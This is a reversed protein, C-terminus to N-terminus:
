AVEMESFDFVFSSFEPFEKVFPVIADLHITIKFSESENFVFKEAILVGDFMIQKDQKTVDVVEFRKSIGTDFGKPPYMLIELSKWFQEAELKSINKTLPQRRTGKPTHKAQPFAKSM